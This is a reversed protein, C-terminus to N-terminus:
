YASQPELRRKEHSRRLWEEDASFNSLSSSEQALSNADPTNPGSHQARPRQTAATHQQLEREGFRTRPATWQSNRKSVFSSTARSSLQQGDDSLNSPAPIYSVPSHPSSPSPSASPSPSSRLSDRSPSKPSYYVELSSTPLPSSGSVAATTADIIAHSPNSFLGKSPLRGRERQVSETLFDRSTENFQSYERPSSTARPSPSRHRDSRHEIKLVESAYSARVSENRAHSPPSLPKELARVIPRRKGLEPAQPKTIRNKWNKGTVWNGESKSQQLERARQLRERHQDFGSPPGMAPPDSCASSHRSSAPSLVPSTLYPEGSRGPTPTDYASFSRDYKDSDEPNNRFYQVQSPSLVTQPHFSCHQMEAESRRRREQAVRSERKLAWQSCREVVDPIHSRQYAM